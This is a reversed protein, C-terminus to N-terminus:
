LFVIRGTCFLCQLTRLHFLFIGLSFTVVEGFPSDTIGLQKEADKIMLELELLNPCYRIRGKDIFYGWEHAQQSQNAKFYERFGKLSLYEKYTEMDFAM